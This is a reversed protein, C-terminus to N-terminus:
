KPFIVFLKGAANAKLVIRLAAPYKELRFFSFFVSM